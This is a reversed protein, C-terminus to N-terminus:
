ANDNTEERPIRLIRAPIDILVKQIVRVVPDITSYMVPVVVLTLFTAVALGWIVAVGMGGWWQGMEGGVILAHEFDGRFLNGFNFSVGITLPILGLITTIATLVVPRFRTKSAEILAETKAMGQNRLKIVYDLLVIANNVVVGALSIVGVGTMIVGFPTRTILLGALVGILSLVVSFLIVFPVTVSTFQSILVLMILMLCIPFANGFLFEEAEKQDKSEGAFTITYGYPLTMGELRAKAEALLANGNYGEGADGAVTVVRQANKRNIAGLGTEFSIDAFATIPIHQGEYFVALGELDEVSQRAPKALRVVIDYEDEGVRYTSVDEGHVATRLMSALDITRIGLRAAKELNPRVRIEPRGRDYNDSLDVLGPIDRIEEKVQEAIEGLVDYKDGSIEVTVPKGAPPGNEQKEISLRAGTFTKLADRLNQMSVTTSSSREEKRNFEISVTSLHTSGGSAVLTEGGGGTGVGAVYAKLDPLDNVASEVTKTYADSVEIRTGSPAEINVYAFTPETDPMFEVGANFRGFLIGMLILVAVMGGMTLARHSLAWRIIPLYLKIGMALLRDGPRKKEIKKAPVSMFRSCLVPNFIMAVILSSILTIIVTIPLYKMFEGMIGPWLVLPGFACITTLTSAIVAGSVQNTAEKAAAIKGKGNMRFRYINEVIVIANDVLMGLALILSFLVVMNLTIDMAQLVIFTILMSFPIASAIFVSNTFGLFLFLVLVVLILGSLINNELESVMDNINVSVDSVITINTGPPQMPKFQEITDRIDEAIRIINEGTRKKINLTVADVTNLRSITERDALDLSVHAIDKLYVPTPAGPNLLIEPIEEVTEFEGPVRILYDYTGLPITGGPININELSIADMVDVLGIGYFMLREPDVDIRVEQEVGGSLEASLVGEIREIEEQLDEAVKKLQVLDYDASLVVQMIAWDSSSIERITLDERVVQPLEPKALEIADRVKQLADSMEVDTTFELTIQAFGESSTSTMEELDAIGKLQQELKRTVLNEMDAPSTGFYPAMVVVIPIKIDPTSERPLRVYATSGILVVMVMLTFITVARDISINTIKM